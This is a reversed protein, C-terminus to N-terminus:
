VKKAGELKWTQLKWYADHPNGWYAQAAACGPSVCCAIAPKGGLDIGEYAEACTRCVYKEVGFVAQEVYWEDSPKSLKDALEDEEVQRQCTACYKGESVRNRCSGKYGPRRPTKGSLYDLLKSMKRTIITGFFHVVFYM